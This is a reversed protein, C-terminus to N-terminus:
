GRPPTPAARRAEPPHASFHFDVIEGPVFSYAGSGNVNELCLAAKRTGGRLEEPHSAEVHAHLRRPTVELADCWACRLAPKPLHRPAPMRYLERATPWKCRLKTGYRGQFLLM